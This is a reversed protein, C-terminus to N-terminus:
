GLGARVWRGVVALPGDTVEVTVQAGAQGQEESKQHEGWGTPALARADGVGEDAVPLRQPEPRPHSAEGGGVGRHEERLHAAQAAVASAQGHVLLSAVQPEDDAKQLDSAHQHVAGGVQRAGLGHQGRGGGGGPLRSPDLAVEPVLEGHSPDLVVEPVLEGDLQFLATKDGLACDEGDGRLHEGKQDVAAPRSRDPWGCRLQWTTGYDGGSRRFAEKRPMLRAKALWAGNARERAGKKENRKTCADAVKEVERIDM